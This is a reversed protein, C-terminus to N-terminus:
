QRGRVPAPTFKPAEGEIPDPHVSVPNLVASVESFLFPRMDGNERCIQYIPSPQPADTPHTVETAAEAPGIGLVLDNADELLLLKYRALVIEASPNCNEVKLMGRLDGESVLHLDAFHEEEIVTLREDIAVKVEWAQLAVQVDWAVLMVEVPEGVTIAAERSRSVLDFAFGVRATPADVPADEFEPWIVQQGEFAREESQAHASVAVLLAICTLIYKM